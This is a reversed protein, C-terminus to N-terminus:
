QAPAAAPTEAPAAAGDADAEDEAAEAEPSTAAMAAEMAEIQAGVAPDIYEVNLNARAAQVMAIYKERMVLQRVQDRVQEFAPPEAQRKELVEIIHWGFQTEVPEQTYSGPELASAAAEFAPVMQGASFWGLDGGQAGSGTDTSRETAIEAFPKGGQLEAIVADADERTPVLIHRANIEEVPETASVEAEYRARLEEDTIAAVGNTEFYANHLARDRLFAIRRQVLADDELGAAEAELSLSRIDILASLVAIRRQEPPLQQFQPGLDAEAAALDAETIDSTGIRAVVAAPDRPAAEVPAPAAAPAAAPDATGAAAPPSEPAPATGQAYAPLATTSLLIACVALRAGLKSTM